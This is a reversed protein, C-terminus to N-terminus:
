QPRRSYRRYKSEGVLAHAELPRVDRAFRDSPFILAWFRGLLVKRFIINREVISAVIASAM